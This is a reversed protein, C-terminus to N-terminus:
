IASLVIWGIPMLGFAAGDLAAALMTTGWVAVSEREESSGPVLPVYVFIAIVLAALLGYIAAMHASVRGTALLGLLLITPVAALLTSLWPSGLPDYLQTWAM